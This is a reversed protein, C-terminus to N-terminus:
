IMPGNKSHRYYTDIYSDSKNPDRRQLCKRRFGDQTMTFVPTIYFLVTDAAKALVSMTKSLGDYIKQKMYKGKRTM